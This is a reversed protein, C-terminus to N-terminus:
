AGGNYYITAVGMNDCCIYCSSLECIKNVQNWFSGSSLMPRNVQLKSLYDETNKDAYQININTKSRLEDLLTSAFIPTYGYSDETYPYVYYPLQKKTWLELGDKFKITTKPSQKESEYDSVYFVGIQEKRNGVNLYINIKSNELIGQKKLTIIIGDADYMELSGSNSQIGWSPLSPDSRDQGSFEISSLNRIKYTTGSAIIEASLSVM